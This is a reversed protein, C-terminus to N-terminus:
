RQWRCARGSPWSPMLTVASSHAASPTPLARNWSASAPRWGRGTRAQKSCRWRDISRNRALTALWTIPSARGPEFSAARRWVTVYVDQLTDEAEQADGLIRLCIGYLKASTLDYVERLSDESGEGTRALARVLRARGGELNIESAM